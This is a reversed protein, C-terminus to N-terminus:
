RRILVERRGFLRADLSFAGPGLCATAAAITVLLLGALPGDTHTLPAFAAADLAMAAGGTAAIACALPTLLGALLAAGGVAAILAIARVPPPADGALLLAGGQLLM